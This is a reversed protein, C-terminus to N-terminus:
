GAFIGGLPQTTITGQKSPATHQIETHKKLLTLIETLVEEQKDVKENLKVLLAYIKETDPQM